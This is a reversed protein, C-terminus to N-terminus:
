SKLLRDLDEECCHREAIRRVRSDTKWKTDTGFEDPGVEFWYGIQTNYCETATKKTPSQLLKELDDQDVYGGTMDYAPAIDWLYEHDNRSEAYAM